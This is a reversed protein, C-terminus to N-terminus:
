DVFFNRFKMRLILNMILIVMLFAIIEKIGLFPLLFFGLVFGGSTAGLTDLFYFFTGIKSTEQTKIESLNKSLILGELIAFSTNFLFIMILPLVSHSVLFLVFLIFIFILFLLSISFRIKESIIFGFSLGLMFTITFIAIVFYVFGFNIQILYILVLESILAIFSISFINFNQKFNITNGSIKKSLYPILFIFILILFILILRNIKLFNVVNSLSINLHKTWFLITLLYAKPNLNTNKVPDFRSISRQFDKLRFENCVDDILASNFWNGTKDRQEMRQILIGPDPSIYNNSSGIYICKKAPIVVTNEFIESFTTKIISNLEALEPLLFNASNSVTILFVSKENQLHSKLFTFFESTYFRNLFISSPDPVNVYILDYKESSNKLYKVPDQKIFNVKQRSKVQPFNEEYFEIINKEMELYDIKNLSNEKQLERLFGNLLGGILLIQQPHPHQLLAFNVMEEAYNKNESNALLMGNRFYNQQQESDTVDFRGYHSDQSSVLSQPIYHAAYNKSFISNSFLLLILLFVAIVLFKLKREYIWLYFISIFSMLVLLPFNGMFLIFLFFYIGGLIMGFCELIYVKHVPNQLNSFLRCNLPFLFGILLCGPTLTIFAILILTPIDIILGSILSLKLTLFHILLFQIPSFLLLFLILLCINKRTTKKIKIIKHLFTGFAVLLLWISLFFSFIIENGNVAIMLERLLIVQSVSSIFGSILPFHIPMSQPLEWPSIRTVLKQLFVM